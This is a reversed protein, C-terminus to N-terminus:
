TLCSEGRIHTTRTLPHPSKKHLQHPHPYPPTPTSTHTHLHPYPHPHPHPPLAYSHIHPCPAPTFIPAARLHSYPPPACTHTHTDPRRVPASIPAARLHSYPAARLHPHPHSPPACIHTHQRASLQPTNIKTLCVSPLSARM